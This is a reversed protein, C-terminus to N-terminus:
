GQLKLMMKILSLSRFNVKTMVIYLRLIRLLLRLSLWGAPMSVLMEHVAQAILRIQYDPTWGMLNLNAVGAAQQRKLGGVRKRFFEDLNSATIALFRLRELLPNREDLAEALVRWNFDLWVLERNYIVPSSALDDLTVETVPISSENTVVPPMFIYEADEPDLAAPLDSPTDGIVIAIDPEDFHYSYSAM